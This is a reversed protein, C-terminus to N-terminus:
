NENIEIVCDVLTVVCTARPALQQGAMCTSTGSVNGGTATISSITLPVTTTNTLTTPSNNLPISGGAPNSMSAEAALVFALGLLVAWHKEGGGMRMRRVAMLGLVSALIFVGWTTLSPVATPVPAYVLNANCACRRHM